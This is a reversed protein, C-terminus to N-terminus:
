IAWVVRSSRYLIWDMSPHSTLLEWASCVPPDGSGHPVCKNLSYWRMKELCRGNVCLEAHASKIQLVPYYHLRMLSNLAENMNFDVLLPVTNIAIFLLQICPSDAEDELLILFERSFVVM